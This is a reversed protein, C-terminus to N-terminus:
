YAITLVSGSAWVATESIRTLTGSPTMRFTATNTFTTSGFSDKDIRIIKLLATSATDPELVYSVTATGEVRSKASTAYLTSTYWVGTSNVRATSPITVSSTVVEYEDGQSGLPNYNTDVFETSSSSLPITRGNANLTGTIVTVKQLAGQREFTTSTLAGETVTGNGTVNIGDITGSATFPASRTATVHNVYATRLQFADTSAVTTSASGGGGGGGCGALVMLAFSALLSKLFTL